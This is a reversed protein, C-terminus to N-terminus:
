ARKRALIPQARAGHAREDKGVVLLVPPENCLDVRRPPLVRRRRAGVVEEDDPRARGPEDGRGASGAEAGAHREDLAMEEAAVAQVDAAHRRLRHDGGGADGRRRAIGFGEAHAGAGDVGVERRRHGAHPAKAGAHCRVVARRAEGAEADVDVEARPAEGARPRELHLAPIHGNPNIKLYDPKRSEGIFSVPVLEYPVQLEELMWLVRATRSRPVGYLKIM